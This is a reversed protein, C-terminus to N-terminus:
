GMSSRDINHGEAQWSCCAWSGVSGSHAGEAVEEDLDGIINDLDEDYIGSAVKDLMSSIIVPGVGAFM